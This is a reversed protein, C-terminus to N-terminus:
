GVSINTEEGAENFGTQTAVGEYLGNHTETSGLNACAGLGTGGTQTYTITTFNIHGTVDTIGTGKTGNTMVVSTGLNQAPIHLVCKTTGVSTVNITIDGSTCTITTISQFSGNTTNGNTDTHILFDCNGGNVTADFSGFKCGSYTASLTMTTVTPGVQQGTYHTAKCRVTGGDGVFRDGNEVTQEGVITTTKGVSADTQLWYSANGLAASAGVAGVALAAVLALGLVKLNRTM